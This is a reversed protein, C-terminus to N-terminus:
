DDQILHSVKLCVSHCKTSASNEINAMMQTSLHRQDLYLARQHLPTPITSIKNFALTILSEAKPSQDQDIGKLSQQHSKQASLIPSLPSFPM